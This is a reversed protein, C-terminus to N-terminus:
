APPATEVQAPEEGGGQADELGKKFGELTRALQGGSAQGLVAALQSAPASLLGVVQARLTDLTPLKSVDKISDIALVRGEIIAGLVRLEPTHAVRVTKQRRGPTAMKAAEVAKAKKQAEAEAPSLKKMPPVSRELARLIASLQPPDLSPLTLLALGGRTMLQALHQAAASDVPAFDRLAAGFIGSTLFTIKPHVVPAVPTVPTPGTLSAHQAAQAQALAAQRNVADALDKRLKILRTAKFDKHHLFLIPAGHTERFLRTYTDYLFTKREDYVRAGTKEGFRKQPALSIAYTRTQTPVTSAIHTARARTTALMSTASSFTTLFGPLGSFAVIVDVQNNASRRRKGGDGSRQREGSSQQSHKAHFRHVQM